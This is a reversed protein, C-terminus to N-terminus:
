EATLINAKFSLYRHKKILQQNAKESHLSTIVQLQWTQELYLMDQTRCTKVVPRQVAKLGVLLVSMLMHHSAPVGSVVIGRVGLM